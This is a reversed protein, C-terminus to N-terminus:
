IPCCIFVDGCCAVFTVNKKSFMDFAEKINDPNTYKSGLHLDTFLGIRVTDGKFKHIPKQKEPKHVSGSLLAKLEKESFRQQLQSVLKEDFSNSKKAKSQNKYERAYRKVSERSLGLIGAAKDVGYEKFCNYVEVVREKKM